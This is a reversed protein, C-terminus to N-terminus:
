DSYDLVVQAGNATEAFVDVPAFGAAEVSLWACESWSCGPSWDDERSFSARGAADSTALITERCSVTAGEVPDGEADVVESQWDQTEAEWCGCFSRGCEADNWPHTEFVSCAPLALLLLATRTM